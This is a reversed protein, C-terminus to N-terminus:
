TLFGVDSVKRVVFGDRNVKSDILINVDFLDLRIAAIKVFRITNPGNVTDVARVVVLCSTTVMALCTVQSLEREKNIWCGLCCCLCRAGGRAIVLEIEWCDNTTNDSAADEEDDNDNESSADHIL